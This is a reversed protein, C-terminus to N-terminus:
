RATWEMGFVGIDGRMVGAFLTEFVWVLSWAFLQLGMVIGLRFTKAGVGIVGFRRRTKGGGCDGGGRFAEEIDFKGCEGVGGEWGDVVGARMDAL